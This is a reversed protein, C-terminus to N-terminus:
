NGEAKQKALQLARVFHVVSWREDPTLMDAYSPMKNQGRTIIHWIRGDPYKLAQPTHLSPPAPFLGPGQIRGNAEGRPGHCTICIRGWIEQGQLLAQETRAVPNVLAKGAAEAAKTEDKETVIYPQFISGMPVTGLVPPREVPLYVGSHHGYEGQAKGKPQVAMDNLVDLYPIALILIPVALCVVPIAVLTVRWRGEFWKPKWDGLIQKLM